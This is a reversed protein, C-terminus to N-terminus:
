GPEIGSGKGAHCYGFWVNQQRWFFFVYLVNTSQEIAMILPYGGGIPVRTM